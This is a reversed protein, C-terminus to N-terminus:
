LKFALAAKIDVVIIIIKILINHVFDRLEYASSPFSLRISITQESCVGSYESLSIGSVQTFTGQFLAFSCATIKSIEAEDIPEESAIRNEIYDIAANIREVWDM